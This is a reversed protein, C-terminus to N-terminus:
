QVIITGKLAVNFPDLHNHYTCTRRASFMLTYGDGLKLGRRADFGPCLNHTPHPDSAPWYPADTGNIFSVSDGARVTLTKPQPGSQTLRVIYILPSPTPTLRPRPSPTKGVMASPSPSAGGNDVSPGNLLWRGAFFAVVAIVIGGIVLTKNSYTNM